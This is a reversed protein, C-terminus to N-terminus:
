IQLEGYLFKIKIRHHMMLKNRRMSAQIVQHKLYGKEHFGGLLYHLSISWDMQRSRKQKVKIVPISPREYLILKISVYLLVRRGHV